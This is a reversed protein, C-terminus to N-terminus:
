LSKFCNGTFRNKALTGMKYTRFVVSFKQNESTKGPYLIPLIPVNTLFLKIESSIQLEDTRLFSQDSLHQNKTTCKNNFNFVFKM